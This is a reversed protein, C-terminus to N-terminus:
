LTAGAIRLEADAERVRAIAAAIDFNQAEAEAIFANLQPSGFGRWWDEAPWVAHGTADAGRWSAPLAVAPHRYDPGVDCGSLTTTAVALTAMLWPRLSMM